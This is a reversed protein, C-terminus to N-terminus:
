RRLYEEIQKIVTDINNEVEENTFRIIKIGHTALGQSREADQEQQHLQNHYGGDVEIVLKKSYCYFDVIYNLIPHQRRFKFEALQKKKLRKWLLREVPTMKKRLEKALKILVPSAGLYIPNSLTSNNTNM